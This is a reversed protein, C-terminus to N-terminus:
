LPPHGLFEAARALMRQEQKLQQELLTPRYLLHPTHLDYIGGFASPTQYLLAAPNGSAQFYQPPLIQQLSTQNSHHGLLAEAFDLRTEAHRIKPLTTMRTVMTTPTSALRQRKSLQEPNEATNSRKLTPTSNFASAEKVLSPSQSDITESCNRSSSRANQGTILSNKAVWGLAEPLSQCKKKGHPAIWKRQMSKPDWEVTWGDPLGRAKAQEMAKKVEEPSLAKKNVKKEVSSLGLSNSTYLGNKLTWALADSVSTAKKTKDRSVYVRKKMESDWEITWGAPLDQQQSDSVESQESSERNEPQKMPNLLGVKRSWALAEGISKCRKRNEPGVWMRTGTAHSWQVKWSDPLGKKRAEEYADEKEEDTLVQDAPPLQSESVLKKKLSWAIAKRINYCRRSGCPSIWVKCGRQHDFEVKWGQPLGKLHAERLEQKTEEPSLGRHISPAALGKPQTLMGIKVSYELADPLSKCTKRGGPAIWVRSGRQSNWAVTWGEPLGRARAERMCLDVERPTMTRKPPKNETTISQNKQSLNNRVSGEVAPFASCYSENGDSSIFTPFNRATGMAVGLGESLGSHKAQWILAAEAEASTLNM